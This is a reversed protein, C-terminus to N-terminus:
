KMASMKTPEKQILFFKTHRTKYYYLRIKKISQKYLKANSMVAGFMFDNSLTLSEWLEENKDNIMTYEKDREM